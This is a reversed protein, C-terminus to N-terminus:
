IEDIVSSIDFITKNSQKHYNKYLSYDIKDNLRQELMRKRNLKDQKISEKWQVYDDYQNVIVAIDYAFISDINCRIGRQKNKSILTTNIGKLETAKLRFMDYLEYIPIPKNINKYEGSVVQSILKRAYPTITTKSFFLCYWEILLTNCKANLVILQTNQKLSKLYKECEDINKKGKKLSTKHETFCHCHCYHKKDYVFSGDYKQKLDINGKCYFCKVSLAM